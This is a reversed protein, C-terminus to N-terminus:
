EIGIMKEFYMAAMGNSGEYKNAICGILASDLSPYVQCTDQYSIYGHFHTDENRVAEVIQYEGICHINVIKGWVYEIEIYKIKEEHTAERIDNESITELSSASYRGHGCPLFKFEKRKYDKVVIGVENKYVVIDGCKM